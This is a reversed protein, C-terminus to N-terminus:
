SRCSHSHVVNLYVKKEFIAKMTEFEELKKTGSNWFLSRRRIEPVKTM